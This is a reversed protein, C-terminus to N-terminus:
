RRRGMDTLKLEPQIEIMLAEWLVERSHGHALRPATQYLRPLVGFLDEGAREAIEMTHLIEEKIVAEFRETVEERQEASLTMGGGSQLVGELPLRIICLINGDGNELFSYQADSKGIELPITRGMYEGELLAGEAEGLLFLYGREEEDALSYVGDGGIAIGGGLRLKEEEVSIRPFIACGSREQWETLFTDLDTGKTVAVEQATNKYFDWLFLGTNSDEKLVAKVCDEASDETALLMVKESISQSRELEELLPYLKEQEELIAESFIITKLQGLDTQRSSRCDVQAVADALTISEATYPNPEAKDKQNAPAFSFHCGDEASDVGLTIIYERDEPDKQDWCGTLFLPLLLLFLSKKRM